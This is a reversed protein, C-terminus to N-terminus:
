ADEEEDVEVEEEAGAEAEPKPLMKGGTVIYNMAKYMLKATTYDSTIDGERPCVEVVDVAAIRRRTAVKRILRMVQWWGLGGPEPNGVGPMLSPDFVSMDVSLYVPSRLEQIVDEHWSEDEARNIDSMFFCEIPKEDDVILDFAYRSLSRVGVQCIHIKKPDLDLIRRMSSHHNEPEDEEPLALDAHADLHLVSMEDCRPLMARVGWFTLTGEGGLLVPVTTADLAENVRAEVWEELQMEEPAAEPAICHVGRDIVNLGTEEDYDEVQSSADLIARPAAAQGRVYTATAETPVPIISFLADELDASEYGLFDATQSM